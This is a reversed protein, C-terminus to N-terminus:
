KFSRILRLPIPKILQLPILQCATTSNEPLCDNFLNTLVTSYYNISIATPCNLSITTLQYKLLITDKSYCNKIFYYHFLLKILYILLLLAEAERRVQTARHAESAVKV